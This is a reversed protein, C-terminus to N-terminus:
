RWVGAPKGGNWFESPHQHLTQWTGDPWKIMMELHGVAVRNALHLSNGAEGWKRWFWTDEDVHGEYWDGNPDPTSWFWPKPMALLKDTRFIVCGMHATAIKITDGRLAEFTIMSLPQGNDGNINILPRNETRHMQIPALADIDPRSLALHIMTEVDQRTYVTDYDMFMLWEYNQYKLAEQIARSICQGWFAGSFMYTEIGLGQLVAFACKMNDIFGLRGVSMVTAMFPRGRRISLQTNLPLPQQTVLEGEVEQIDIVPSEM